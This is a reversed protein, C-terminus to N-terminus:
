FTVIILIIYKSLYVIFTYLSSYHFVLFKFVSCPHDSAALYLLSVLLFIRVHPIKYLKIRVKPWNCYYRWLQSCNGSFTNDFLMNNVACTELGTTPMGVLMPNLYRQVIMYANERICRM